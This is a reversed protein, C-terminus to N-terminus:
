LSALRKSTLARPDNKQDDRLPTKIGDLYVTVAMWERGNNNPALVVAVGAGCARRQGPKALVDTVKEPDEIASRIQEATFGKALIQKLCHNAVRVNKGQFEM